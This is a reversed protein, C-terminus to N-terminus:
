TVTPVVAETTLPFYIRMRTEIFWHWIGLSTFMLHHFHSSLEGRGYSVGHLSWNTLRRNTRPWQLRDQNRLWCHLGTKFSSPSSSINVKLVEETVSSHIEQDGGMIAQGRQYSLVPQAPTIQNYYHGLGPWQLALPGSSCCLARLWFLTKCITCNYQKNTQQISSLSWLEGCHHWQCQHCHYHCLGFLPAPPPLHACAGQVLKYVDDNCWSM